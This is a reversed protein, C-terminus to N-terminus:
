HACRELTETRAGREADADRRSANLCWRFHGRWDLQWRPPDRRVAWECRPHERAQRAQSVAAAAYDRCFGPEAAQVSAAGACVTVTTVLATVVKHM